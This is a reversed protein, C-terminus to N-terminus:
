SRNRARRTLAGLRVSSEIAAGSGFSMVSLGLVTETQAYMGYIFIAFGSIFVSILGFIWFSTLRRGSRMPPLTILYISGVGELGAIVVALVGVIALSGELSSSGAFILTTLLVIGGVLVAWYILRDAETRILGDRRMNVGGLFSYRRDGREERANGRQTLTAVEKM